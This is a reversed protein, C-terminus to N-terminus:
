DGRGDLALKIFSLFMIGALAALIVGSQGYEAEFASYNETALRMGESVLRNINEMAPEGEREDSAILM